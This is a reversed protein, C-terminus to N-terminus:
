VETETSNIHCAKYIGGMLFLKKKGEGCPQKNCEDSTYLVTEPKCQNTDVTMNGIM